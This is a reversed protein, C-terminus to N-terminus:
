DFPEREEAAGAEHRMFTPDNVAGATREFWGEPWGDNSPVEQWVVLMELVKGRLGVPVDLHVAGSDDSTVIKKVTRM